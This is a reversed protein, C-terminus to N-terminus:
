KEKLTKYKALFNQGLSTSLACFYSKQSEILQNQKTAKAAADAVVVDVVVVVDRRQKLRKLSFVDRFPFGSELM